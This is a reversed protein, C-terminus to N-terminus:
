RQSKGQDGKWLFVIPKEGAQCDPNHLRAMRECLPFKSCIQRAACSNRKTEFNSLYSPCVLRKVKIYTKNDLLLRWYDNTVELEGTRLHLSEDERTHMHLDGDGGAPMTARIM